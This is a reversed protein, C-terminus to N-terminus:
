NVANKVGKMSEKNAQIEEYTPQGLLKWISDFYRQGDTSLRDRDCAELDSLLMILEKTRDNAINLTVKKM